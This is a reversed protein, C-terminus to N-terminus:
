RCAPATASRSERLVGVVPQDLVVLQDALAHVVRDGIGALRRSEKRVLEPRQVPQALRLRAEELDQM